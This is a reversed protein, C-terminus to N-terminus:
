QLKPNATPIVGRRIKLNHIVRVQLQDALQQNVPFVRDTPNCAVFDGNLAPLSTFKRAMHWYDLTSYFEGSAYSPMYRYEDYRDQYGWSEDDASTGQAYIEKKLIEQQGTNQFEPQWYDFKSKRNWHRHVGDMYMTVPRVTILTMFWGYEPARYTYPKQRASGIGHGRLTGVDGVVDGESDSVGATQLVESFQVVNRTRGVLEPLQLRSDHFRVGLQKLRENYRSGFRLMNEMFRQVSNSIRFQDISTANVSSLDAYFDSDAQGQLSVVPDPVDSGTNVFYQGPTPSGSAHVPANGSLPIVVAPGKQPWPRATTFYDKRWAADLLTTNTQENVEAQLDQDRYFHNWIKNYAWVPFACHEIGPVGPRIGLHHCLSGVAYGTEAPSTLQPITPASTGAPGGTIFDEFEDWLIRTPIFYTEIDVNVKHMLPALLPLTRVLASVSHRARDGPLAEVLGCPVLKGMNFSLPREHSLNHLYTRM